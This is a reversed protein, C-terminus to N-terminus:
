FDNRQLLLLVFELFGDNEWNRIKSVLSKMIKLKLVLYTQQEFLLNVDSYKSEADPVLKDTVM